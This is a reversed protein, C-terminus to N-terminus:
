FDTRAPAAQLGQPLPVAASSVRTVNREFVTDGTVRVALPAAPGETLVSQEGVYLGIPNDTIVGRTLSGQAASIAVGISASRRVEFDEVSATAGDRVAIGDGFDLVGATDVVRLRSVSLQTGAGAAFVGVEHSRAVSLCSAQATAGGEISLGRGEQMVSTSIGTDEISITDLTLSTSPDVAHIAAERTRVFTGRTISGVSKGDLSVGRGFELTDTPLIDVAAFDLLQVVAATSGHVGAMRAREVRGRHVTLRAASQAVLGEGMALATGALTDAVVLDDLTAEASTQVWAGLDVNQEFRVRTATTVASDMGILGVGWRSSSGEEHTDRVRADTLTLHTGPEAVLLGAVRTHAVVTRSLDAQAAGKLVLGMGENRADDSPAVDLLAFDQATLTTGAGSLIVGGKFVRRILVRSLTVTPGDAVELGTGFRRNAEQSRQDQLVVDTLTLSTGVHQAVAGTTRNKELLARTLTAKGQYRVELGNGYLRSALESETGRIVLDTLEASSGDGEVTLGLDRNGDLVVGAGTVTGRSRVQLGRGMTNDAPDPLTGSVLVDTLSVKGLDSVFLGALTAGHVWVGQVTAPNLNNSVWLGIRPGTVQLNKVTAGATVDVTGQTSSPNPAQIITEAACAGLLTVGSRPLRVAELYTGKALVITTGSTAGVLAQAITGFPTAPSSGDGTAGPKVYRALTGQPVAPFDGTPCPDGLPQCDRSGLAPRTGPPCTAPLPPPACVKPAAPTGRALEGADVEFAAEALWGTPCTWDVLRPSDPPAPAVLCGDVVSGADTGADEDPPTTAPPAPCATTLVLLGLAVHLPRM